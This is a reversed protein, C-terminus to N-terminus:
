QVEDGSSSDRSVTYVRRCVARYACDNCQEFNQKTKDVTFNQQAISGAFQDALVEVADITECLDSGELVKGTDPSTLTGSVVYPVNDNICYYVVTEVSLKKQQHELMDKYIPMQFDPVPVDESVYFTDKPIGARSTKFDILIISGDSTALLCDPRGAFFFQKGDPAYEYPEEVAYVTCGEFWRSFSLVCDYMKEGLANRETLLLQKALPSNDSKRISDDICSSLMEKYSDSLGEKEAHLPLNNEKLKTCFNQMISHNLNGVAFADMLEAENIEPKIALVNQLLYLRPCSFFVNLATKSACIKGNEKNYVKGKLVSDIESSSLVLADKAPKTFFGEHSAFWSTFGKKQLETMASISDATSDELLWSKEATYPDYAEPVKVETKSGPRRDRPELDSHPLSYGSFTKESVTFYANDVGSLSSLAYLKIFSESPNIDELGLATRKDQRLFQLQKFLISVSAQSADIVVHAGFPATAVLKYPFIQVGRSDTQALYLVGSIIDTFFSYPSPVKCDAFEKELDMLSALETICRSMIRDSQPTFSDIDFFVPKLKFYEENIDSFTLANVVSTVHHKLSDYYEELRTFNRDHLEKFAQKWPDVKIGNYEYSCICNNDKGFQVLENNLSPEKWPLETNLVLNKVTNFSFNEAVCEQLQVFFHGAGNTTLPLGMRLVHPIEYLDLERTLYPAYTTLDPVSVAIDEWAINKEEHLKRLYLAVHRLESRANSFFDVVPKSSNTSGQKTSADTNKDLTVLHIQPASSLLVKYEAFDMLVEPYFIYYDNGDPVFPPTEWAPDFLNHADLFAKYKDHLLLLDSDEDDPARGSAEFKTKWTSLSPLLSSIWSAFSASSTAYEPVILNKLFPSTANEAILNTAFVTRMVAPVSKKGAVHSKISATKFDDWAIFREMAVASVGCTLTARDAWRDASIGTPFVFVVNQEHIHEAITKEIKNEQM